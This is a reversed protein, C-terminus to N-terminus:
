PEPQASKPSSLRLRVSLASSFDAFGVSGIGAFDLTGYSMPVLVASGTFKTSGM